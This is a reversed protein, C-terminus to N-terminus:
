VEINYHNLIENFVQELEYILQEGTDEDDESVRNAAIKDLVTKVRNNSYGHKRAPRFIKERVDSLAARLKLATIADLVDQEDTYEDM